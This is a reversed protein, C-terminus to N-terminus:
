PVFNAYIAVLDILDVVGDGNVDAIRASNWNADAAKALYHSAALTLDVWNVEGDDNIDYISYIRTTNSAPIVATLRQNSSPKGNIIDIGYIAVTALTVNADGLRIPNLWLKCVDSTGSTVDGYISLVVRINWLNTVPDLVAQKDFIQFVGGMSEALTDAGNIINSDAIFDLAITNIDKMNAANITYEIKEKYHVRDSATVRIVQTDPTLAHVIVSAVSTRAPLAGGAANVECFYYYTGAALTLPITFSAGTAGGIATGGTNSNTTNSYWQYSLAAGQTASATVSLSGTIGSQVVNTSAAPQSNIMIVPSTEDYTEFSNTIVGAGSSSKLATTQPISNLEAMGAAPVPSALAAIAPTALVLIIIASLVLSYLRKM